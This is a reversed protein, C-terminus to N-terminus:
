LYTRLQTALFKAVRSSSFPWAYAFEVAPYKGRARKIAEPIGYEAHDAGRTLMPTVVVVRAAGNEVAADFAEDLSPGCFKNFGFEVDLETIKALKGALKKSATFFPDNEHDRPWSRMRTEIEEIRGVAEEPMGGSAHELRSHLGFYEALEESPFDKPPVGPMALVITTKM